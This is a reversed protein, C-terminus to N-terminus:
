ALDGLLLCYVTRKIKTLSQMPGEEGGGHNAYQNAISYKICGLIYNAMKFALARQQNMNLMLGWIRKQLAASWGRTGPRYTCGPNCQGLHLIQCKNKNSKMCNTIAWKIIKEGLGQNARLWTM